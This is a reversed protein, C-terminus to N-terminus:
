FGGPAFVDNEIGYKERCAERQDATGGVCQISAGHETLCVNEDDGLPECNANVGTEDEESLDVADPHTVPVCVWDEDDGREFEFCREAPVGDQYEDIDNFRHSGREETEGTFEWRSM